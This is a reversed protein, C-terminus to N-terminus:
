DSRSRTEAATVKALVVFGGAGRIGGGKEKDAVAEDDMMEEVSSGKTGYKEAERGEETDPGPVIIDVVRHGGETRDPMLIIQLPRNVEEIPVDLVDVSCNVVPVMVPAEKEDEELAKLKIVNVIIGSRQLYFTLRRRRQRQRSRDLIFITYRGRFGRGTAAKVNVAAIKYGGGGGHAATLAASPCGSAVAANWVKKM